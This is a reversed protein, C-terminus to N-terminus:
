KRLEKNKKSFYVAIAGVVLSFGILLAFSDMVEGTQPLKKQPVNPQAKPPIIVSLPPVTIGASPEEPEIPEEPSLPDDGPVVAEVVAINEVNGLAEETVVVQFRVTAFTGGVLDGAEVTIEGKNEEGVPMDNLQLTEPIYVLGKPLTDHIIVGKVITTPDAVNRAEIRYEFVEGVYVTKDTLLEGDLSYANKSTELKGASPVIESPVEPTPTPDEPDEYTLATNKVITNLASELVKVQFTVTVEEGGELEVPTVILKEEEWVEEDELSEGNLTTSGKVLETGAPLTDEITGFWTGADEKNKVHISYTLTDGVYAKEKDVEKTSTVEPPLEVETQPHNPESPEDPEGPVAPPINGTITGTNKISGKAEETVVAQFTVVAKEGGKLEGVPVTIDQGNVYSDDLSNGNLKLTGPVYALGTPLTDQIQVDRVITTEDKVNEASLAYNITDGVKVREGDLSDGNENFAHKESELEGASPLVNTPVEPTPTPNNPDTYATASNTVGTDLAEKLVKVQFAVIAEQNGELTIPTVTLKKDSWVANDGLSNGNLTTSNPVLETGTPLTDEITGNEWRGGYQSNKAKITYTLTDGIYAKDKDVGKTVDVEPLIPIIVENSSAEKENDTYGYDLYNMEAQNTLADIGEAGTVRVQFTLPVTSDLEVRELYYHVSKEGADYYAVTSDDAYSTGNVTLSGPIYESGVPIEDVINATTPLGGEIGTNSANLQYTVIDGIKVSTKDAQKTINMPSSFAFVIGDLFNGETQPEVGGGPRVTASVSEFAFRTLTQGEPITYSGNYVGWATNSDEMLLNYMADNPVIEGENAGPVGINVSAVDLGFRGRHAVQFRYTVGPLTEIDQYLTSVQTANLESFWNGEFAPVPPMNPFANERFGDRLFEMRHNPASTEWDPVQSEDYADWWDNGGIRDGDPEKEFGGNQLNGTSAAIGEQPLILFNPLIMAVLIIIRLVKSFLKKTEEM